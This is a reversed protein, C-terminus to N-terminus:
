VEVNEAEPTFTLVGDAYTATGTKRAGGYTVDIDSVLAAGGEGGLTTPIVSSAPYREAFSQGAENKLYAHVILCDQNILQAASKQVVALDVLQNMVADGGVIESGSFTQTMQATKATAYTNGLIDTITEIGWDYEINGETVKTGMASWVPAEATGTNLYTIMMERAASAGEGATTITFKEAM